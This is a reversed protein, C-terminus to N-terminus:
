SSSTFRARPDCAPLPGNGAADAVFAPELAAHAPALSSRSCRSLEATRRRARPRTSESCRPAFANSACAASAWAIPLRSGAAPRRELASRTERAHIRRERAFRVRRASAQDPSRRVCRGRPRPPSHIAPAPSERHPAAPGRPAREGAVSHTSRASCPRSFRSSSSPAVKLMEFRPARPGSRNVASMLGGCDAIRATPRCRSQTTGTSLLM